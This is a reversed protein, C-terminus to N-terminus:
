GRARELLTLMMFSLLLNMEEEDTCVATKELDFRAEFIAPKKSLRMVVTGDPRKAVYKPNLLMTSLFGILPIEGLIGDLIKIFPNEEELEFTHQSNEPLFCQYSAKWLSRMGKRGISGIVQEDATTFNYKASWDIIRDANINALLDAKSKDRFVEVHEKFRMIKQRTYAITNGTSDKLTLQPTLAVIKFQFRIPYNM